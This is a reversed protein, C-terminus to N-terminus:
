ALGRVFGQRACFRARQLIGLQLRMCVPVRHPALDTVIYLQRSIVTRHMLWYRWPVGNQESVCVSHHCSCCLCELDTRKRRHYVCPHHCSTYQIDCKDHSACKGLCSTSSIFLVSFSFSLLTMGAIQANRVCMKTLITHCPYIVSFMLRCNMWLGNRILFSVNLFSLCKFWQM